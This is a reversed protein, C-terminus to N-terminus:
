RIFLPVFCLVHADNLHQTTDHLYTVIIHIDHSTSHCHLNTNSDYM